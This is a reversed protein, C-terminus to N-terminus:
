NKKLDGGSSKELESRDQTPSVLKSMIAGALTPSKLPKLDLELGLKTLNDRFSGNKPQPPSPKFEPLRPRVQELKAPFQQKKLYAKGLWRRTMLYHDKDPKQYKRAAPSIGETIWGDINPMEQKLLEMGFDKVLLTFNEATTRLYKGFSKFESPQLPPVATKSEEIRKDERRKELALHKSPKQQLLNRAKALGGIKGIKRRKERTKDMKLMRDKLSKSYFFDGEITFLDYNCIIKEILEKDERLDFAIAQYNLALQYSSADRLMEILAFFIGYGRMGEVVRMTMIKQDNRANSDHSFWYADKM